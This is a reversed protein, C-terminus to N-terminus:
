PAVVRYFRQKFNTTATDVFQFSGSGPNTYIPVWNQLNTSVEVRDQGFTGLVSLRVTGNSQQISTIKFVGALFDVNMLAPPVTVTRSTPVFSAYSSVPSPTLTLTSAPVSFSYFGSSDARITGLSSVLIRAASVGTGNTSDFVHGSITYEPAIAYFNVNTVNPQSSNVIVNTQSPSFKYSSSVASLVYGDAESAPVCSIVYYGNTDSINCGAGAGVVAVGPLGQGTPDFVRGSISFAQPSPTGSFNLGNTDGTVTVTLSNSQFCYGALSPVIQSTGGCFNSFVYNGNSDSVTTRGGACITAGSIGVTGNTLRGSITYSDAAAVFNAVGNTQGITVPQSGPTFHYCALSPTVQYTDVPLNSILYTGSADTVANSMGATVTVERLGNSNSDVVRGTIIFSLSVDATASTVSGFSNAVVADYLGADTGQVGTKTYSLNTAGSIPVGNFRWQQSLPPTGSAAISLTFSGGAVVNTNSPPQQTITPPQGVILQAAASNTMGSRNTITVSYSGANAPQANSIILTSSTAGSINGGNFQWQYGLPPDGTATVSFTARGGVAVSQNTPQVIIALPGANSVTLSAPTSGAAGFMNTIRVTYFGENTPQANTITYTAGNAGPISNTGFSWQYALPQTGNAVVAFTATGGADVVQPSPQSNIVPAVGVSDVTLSVLVSTVSGFANTVVVDYLGANNTQANHIVLTNSTVTTNGASPLNTSNFQWVYGLQGGKGQAGVAFTATQGSQISQDTPQNTISPAIGESVSATFNIDSINETVVLSTSGPDFSYNESSPAIVNTGEGVTLTYDGNVDTFNTQNGATVMVNSVGSGDIDLTIIGQVLLGFEFAGIDCHAGIPRAVGRQDFPPCNTDSGADIAPSGSLLAITLTPGGNNALSSIFLNNTKKSGPGALSFSSDSSLNHGLDTITGNGNGGPTNTSFLSNVLKFSGGGNAIGGGKNAGPSGPNGQFAGSGSAGATGGAASCNVFTCNAVVVAGTSYLGGGAGAGGNGGNGGQPLSGSGPGGNGGSGGTATNNFFTCNTVNNGTIGNPALNCIGAGFAGGGAAGNGGTGSSSGGAAASNGGEVTNWVFLSAAVSNSKLSYVAAGFAVGGSSGSGPLGDSFRGPGNTGGLGGNGAHVTNGSFSCNTIVLSSGQHYIAGGIAGAGAGGNGGNGGIGLAATSNGGGGGNGGSGATANNSAVTCNILTLDGLNYIAGGYAATGATGNGGNGGNGSSSDVGKNGNVGNTGVASNGIVTCNILTVIANSNIYLAGGNNTQGNALTINVMMLKVGPAVNFIRNGTGNTGGGSGKIVINQGTGDLVVMDSTNAITITNSVVIPGPCGFTIIGNTALVSRLVKETCNTILYDASVRWISL